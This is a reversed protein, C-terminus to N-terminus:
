SAFNLRNWVGRLCVSCLCLHLSKFIWYYINVNVSRSFISQFKITCGSLLYCASQSKFDSSVPKGRMVHAKNHATFWAHSASICFYFQHNSKVTHSINRLMERSQYKGNSNQWKIKLVNRKQQFIFNVGRYLVWKIIWLTFKVGNLHAMRNARRARLIAECTYCVFHISPNM